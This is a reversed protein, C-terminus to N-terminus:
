TASRTVWAYYPAGNTPHSFTRVVKEAVLENLARMVDTISLPPTTKLLAAIGVSVLPAVISTGDDGDDYLHKFIELFNFAQGPQSQLLGQVRDKVSPPNAPPPPDFFSLPLPVLGVHTASPSACPAVGRSPVPFTSSMSTLGHSSSTARRTPHSVSTLNTAFGPWAM